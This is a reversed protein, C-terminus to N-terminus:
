ARERKRAGLAGGVGLQCSGQLVVLCCEGRLPEVHVVFAQPDRLMGPPLGELCHSLAKRLM